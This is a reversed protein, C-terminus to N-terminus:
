GVHQEGKLEALATKVNNSLEGSIYRLDHCALLLTALKEPKLGALVNVCAMAHEYDATPLPTFLGTQTEPDFTKWTWPEKTHETM